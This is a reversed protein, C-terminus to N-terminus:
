FFFLFNYFLLVIMFELLFTLTSETWRVFLMALTVLIKTCSLLLVQHIALWGFRHVFLDLNSGSLQWVTISELSVEKLPGYYGFADELEHRTGNNGLEGVYVKCDLPVPERPRAMM